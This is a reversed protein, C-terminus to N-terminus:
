ILDDSPCTDSPSSSGKGTPIYSWILAASGVTVAAVVSGWIWRQRRKRRQRHRRMTEMTEQNWQSLERNVAEYYRVRDLLRGIEFNKSELQAEMEAGVEAKGVARGICNSVFRILHVQGSLEEAFQDEVMSPLNLGVLSFQEQIRGWQSQIDNIHDEAKKRKEMEVLLSLRIERLETEVDNLSPQSGGESSLEEWADYFESVSSNLNLSRELGHNSDGDTSSRVSLSDQPDFFDDMESDRELVVSKSEDQRAADDDAISDNGHEGDAVFKAHSDEITKCVNDTVNVVRCSEVDEAELSRVIEITKEDALAQHLAVDVESFAKSLRPGRRKHNVIYPSPAFSSPSDPLPTPEPTAYLAPSIQTWHQKREISKTGDKLDPRKDTGNIRSGQRSDSAVKGAAMPKSAKPEILRDLAITTFTPM